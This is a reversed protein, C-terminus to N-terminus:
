DFKACFFVTEKLEYDSLLEQATKYMLRWFRNNQETYSKVLWDLNFDYLSKGLM